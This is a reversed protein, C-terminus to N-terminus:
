LRHKNQVIRRLQGWETNFLQAPMTKLNPTIRPQFEMQALVDGELDIGSTIEMM